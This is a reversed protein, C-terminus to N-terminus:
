GYSTLTELFAISKLLALPVKGLAKSLYHYYPIHIYIFIFIFISLPIFIHIISHLPRSRRQLLPVEAQTQSHPPLLLHLRRVAPPAPPLLSRPHAQSAQLPRLLPHPRLPALLRVQHAPQSELDASGVPPLSPQHHAPLHPQGAARHVAARHQQDRRRSVPALGGLRAQAGDARSQVTGPDRARVQAAPHHAPGRDREEGPDEGGGEVGHEDVPLEDAPECEEGAGGVTEAIETQECEDNGQESVADRIESEESDVQEKDEQLSGEVREIEGDEVGRIRWVRIANHM